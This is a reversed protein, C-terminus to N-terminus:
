GAISPTKPGLRLMNASALGRSPIKYSRKRAARGARRFEGWTNPQVPHPTESDLAGTRKPLLNPGRNGPYRNGRLSHTAQSEAPRVIPGGLSPQILVHALPFAWEPAVCSGARSAARSELRAASWTAPLPAGVPWPFLQPPAVKLSARSFVDSGHQVFTRHLGRTAVRRRLHRSGSRIRTPPKQ